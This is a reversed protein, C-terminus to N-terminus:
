GRVRPRNVATTVRSRLRALRADAQAQTLRGAAVRATLAPKRAAVIADILGAVSKGSTAGAIQALTKGSRLERALQAPRLGLYRAAAPRQAPVRVRNVLANVRRPLNAQSKTLKEKGAALLVSVLGASSKGSKANAIQALSKGSQLESRLQADPMGLYSAATVLPGGRNEHAAGRGITVAALTGGGIVAVIAVAAFLKQRSSRKM